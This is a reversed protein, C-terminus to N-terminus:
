GSRYTAVAHALIACVLAIGLVPAVASEVAELAVTAFFLATAGLATAISGRM